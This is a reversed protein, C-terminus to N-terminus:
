AAHPWHVIEVEAEKKRAEQVLEELKKATKQELWSEGCQECVKAPVKRVVILCSELDATFTTEGLMKQGGCLPCLDMSNM